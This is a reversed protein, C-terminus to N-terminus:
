STYVSCPPVSLNVHSRDLHLNRQIGCDVVFYDAQAYMYGPKSYLLHCSVKVSDM